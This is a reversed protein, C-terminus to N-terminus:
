SWLWSSTKKHGRGNSAHIQLDKEAAQMSGRAPGHYDCSGCYARFRRTKPDYEVVSHSHAM